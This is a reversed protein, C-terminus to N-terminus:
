LKQAYRVSVRYRYNPETQSPPLSNPVTTSGFQPSQELSRIFDLVPETAQSAVWMDLQLENAPSIQPRVSILRVNHPTVQELDGFIKTWSLGKRHLLANLFISRDLVEANEPQRLVAQLKTEERALTELTRNVRALAERSEAARNREILALSVLLVLLGTLLMGVAVSAVILPRDRRFPESALNLQIRM